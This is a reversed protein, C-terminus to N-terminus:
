GPKNSDVVGDIGRTYGTIFIDETYFTTSPFVGNDPVGPIWNPTPAIMSNQGGLSGTSPFPGREPCSNAGRNLRAPSISRISARTSKKRGNDAGIDTQEKRKAGHKLLDLWEGWSDELKKFLSKIGGEMTKSEPLLEEVTDEIRYIDNPLITEFDIINNKVSLLLLAPAKDCLKSLQHARFLYDSSPKIGYNSLHEKLADKNGKSHFTNNFDTRLRIFLAACLRKIVPDASNRGEYLRYALNNGKTVPDDSNRGEALSNNGKPILELFSLPSDVWKDVLEKHKTEFSPKDDKKELSPGDEKRELPPKEFLCPKFDLYNKVIPSLATSLQQSALDRLLFRLHKLFEPTELDSLSISKQGTSRECVQLIHSAVVQSHNIGM